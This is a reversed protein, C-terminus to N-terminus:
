TTKKDRRQRDVPSRSPNFFIICLVLALHVIFCLPLNTAVHRAFELKIAILSRIPLKRWTLNVAYRVFHYLM